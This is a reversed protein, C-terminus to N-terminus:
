FGGQMPDREAVEQLAAIDCTLAQGTRGVVGAEILGLLARNVKPRSAGLMAALDGQTMDLSLTAWGGTAAEQGKLLALLFRAIRSQLDYSVLSELRENTERLLGCLYRAAALPLAPDACFALYDRRFLLFGRVEGVAAADSSRPAGDLMAMEGLFDGPGARRLVFERGHPAILALRVQGSTVIMMYDGEDGRQFITTGAAWVRPQLAQAVRGLLNPGLGQFMPLRALLAVRDAATEGQM